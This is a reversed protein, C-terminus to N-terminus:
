VFAATELIREGCSAEGFTKSAYEFKSFDGEGRSEVDNAIGVM